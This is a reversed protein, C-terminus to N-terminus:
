PYRQKAHATVDAVQVILRCNRRCICYVRLHWNTTELSETDFRLVPFTQNFLIEILFISIWHVSLEEDCEEVSLLYM